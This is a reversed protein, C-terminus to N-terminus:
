RDRSRLVTSRGPPRRRSARRAGSSGSFPRSATVFQSIGRVQQDIGILGAEDFFTPLTDREFVRVGCIRAGFELVKRVLFHERGYTTMVAVQGNPALVRVMERLVVIPDPVLHLAASCFVVDFVGDDFPLRLADARMYVARAHSNDRIAREIMARSNDLGIAFGDGDLKEAFIATFNGPGCAVDLVRQPGGLHLATVARECESAMSMGHLSLAAVMVPRWLRQYIAAVFPNQMARQVITHRIPPSSGLLDTYGDRHNMTRMAEERILGRALAPSWVADPDMDAGPQQVTM